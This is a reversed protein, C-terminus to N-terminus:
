GVFMLLRLQRRSTSISNRGVNIEVGLITGGKLSPGGEAFRPLAISWRDLRRIPEEQLSPPKASNFNFCNRADLADNRFFEFLEGLFDNAGSGHRLAFTSRWVRGAVYERADRIPGTPAFAYM